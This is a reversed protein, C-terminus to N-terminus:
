AAFTVSTRRRMRLFQHPASHRQFSQSNGAAAAGTIVAAVRLANDGGERAAGTPHNTRDVRDLERLTKADLAKGWGTVLKMGELEMGGLLADM